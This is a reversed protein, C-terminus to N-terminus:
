RWRTQAIRQIERIDKQPDDIGSIEQGEGGSKRAPPAKDSRLPKRRVPPRRHKEKKM